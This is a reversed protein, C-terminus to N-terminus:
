NIPRIVSRRTFICSATLVLALMILTVAGIMGLIRRIKV